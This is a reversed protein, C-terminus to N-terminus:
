CSVYATRRKGTLLLARRLLSRCANAADCAPALTAGDSKPPPSPLRTGPSALPTLFQFEGASGLKWNLFSRGVPCVSLENASPDLSFEVFM